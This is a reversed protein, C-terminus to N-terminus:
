KKREKKWLCCSYACPSCSQSRTNATSSPLWLASYLFASYLFARHRLSSPRTLSAYSQLVSHRREEGWTLKQFFCDQLKSRQTSERLRKLNVCLTSWRSVQPDESSPTIFLDALHWMAMRVTPVTCMCFYEDYASQDESNRIQTKKKQKSFTCHHYINNKNGTTHRRSRLHQSGLRLFKAASFCNPTDSLLCKSKVQSICQFIIWDIGKTWLCRYPPCPCNNWEHLYTLNGLWSHTWKQFLWLILLM